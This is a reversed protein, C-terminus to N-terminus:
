NKFYDVIEKAIPLAGLVSLHDDDFYLPTGQKVAWCYKEDCNYRSPEIFKVNSSYKTNSFYNLIFENRKLYYEKSTGKINKVDDGQRYSVRL